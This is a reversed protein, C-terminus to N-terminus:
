AAVADRKAPKLADKRLGDIYNAWAQMLMVRQEIYKARDYASGLPGKKEHALQAEIWAENVPRGHVKVREALITRATARFGHAVMEESGFGMARLALNVTNESMPRDNGRESPFVYRRHGTLPKLERLAKVLQKALPVVHARGNLKVKASGKMKASPITWVAADLDVEAWEAARINFPRQFTLLSMLLAVRTPLAGNYGDIGLVLDAVRKPEIIASMNRSEVKKLLGDLQKIVNLEVLEHQMAYTWVQDCYMRLTHALERKGAAQPRECCTLVERWTITNIIRDGLWPFINREMRQVFKLAYATSWEALGNADPTSKHEHFRMAVDRLSNPIPGGDERRRQAEAEAKQAARLAQKVASPNVGEALLKRAEDAKRRALALSTDPYTGFSITKRKAEFSYDFRWGHSGGDAFLLLYLGDGDSLRKSEGRQAAREAKKIAEINTILHRPM